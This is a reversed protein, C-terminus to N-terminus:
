TAHCGGHKTLFRKTIIRWKSKLLLLGTDSTSLRVHSYHLYNQAPVLFFTAIGQKIALL